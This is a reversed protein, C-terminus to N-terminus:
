SRHAPLAFVRDCAKAWLHLGGHLHYLETKGGFVEVNAGDFVESWLFDVVRTRVKEAQVAWYLLLDCNLTFVKRYRILEEGTVRLTDTSMARWPVHIQGVSDFLGDRVQNYIPDVWNVPEGVADTLTRTLSLGALAEEFNQTGLRTFVARVPAAFGNAAADYLSAYGFKDWVNISLGNGVVLTAWQPDCAIDRWDGLEANVSLHNV